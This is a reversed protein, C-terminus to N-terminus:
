KKKMCNELFVERSWFKPLDQTDTCKLKYKRVLVQVSFLKEYKVITETNQQEKFLTSM